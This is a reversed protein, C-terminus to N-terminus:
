QLQHTKGDFYCWALLLRFCFRLSFGEGLSEAEPLLRESVKARFNCGCEKACTEIDAGEKSVCCSIGGSTSTSIPSPFYFVTCPDNWALSGAGSSASWPSSVSGRSFRTRAGIGICWGILLGLSHSAREAGCPCIGAFAWWAHVPCGPHCCPNLSIVLFFVTWKVVASKVARWSAGTCPSVSHLNAMSCKVCLRELECVCQVNLVPGLSPPFAGCPAM